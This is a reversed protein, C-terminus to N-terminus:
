ALAWTLLQEESLRQPRGPPVEWEESGGQSHGQTEEVANM